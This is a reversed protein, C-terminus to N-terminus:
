EPQGAPDEQTQMLNLDGLPGDFFNGYNAELVFTVAQLMEGYNGQYAGNFCWTDSSMIGNPVFKKGDRKTYKLIRKMLASGGKNQLGAALSTLAAGMNM